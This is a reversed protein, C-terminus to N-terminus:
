LARVEKGLGQWVYIFFLVVFTRLNLGIMLDLLSMDATSLWFPTIASWLHEASFWFPAIAMSKTCAIAGKQNEVSCRQFAIKKIIGKQSEVSSISIDQVGFLECNM